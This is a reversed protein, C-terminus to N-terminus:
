MGLSSMKSIRGKSALDNLVEVCDQVLSDAPESLLNPSKLMCLPYNQSCKVVNPYLCDVAYRDQHGETFELAEEFDHEHVFLLYLVFM